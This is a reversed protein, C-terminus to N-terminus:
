EGVTFVAFNLERNCPSNFGQAIVNRLDRVALEDDEVALYIDQYSWGTMFCCRASRNIFTRAQNAVIANKIM